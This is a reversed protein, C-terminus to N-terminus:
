LLNKRLWAARREFEPSFLWRLVRVALWEFVAAAGVLMGAFFCCLLLGFCVM